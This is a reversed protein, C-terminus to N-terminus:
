MGPAVGPHPGLCLPGRATCPTLKQSDGCLPMGNVRKVLLHSSDRSVKERELILIIIM